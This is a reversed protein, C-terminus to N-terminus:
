KIIKEEGSENIVITGCRGRCVSEIGVHQSSDPRQPEVIDMATAIWYRPPARLTYLLSSSTQQPLNSLVEVIQRRLSSPIWQSLKLLFQLKQGSPSSSICQPLWTNRYVQASGAPQLGAVIGGTQSVTFICHISTAPM